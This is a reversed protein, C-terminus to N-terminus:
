LVAAGSPSRPAHDSAALREYLSEYADVHAKWASDDRARAAGATGLAAAEAPRSLLRDLSAALGEVDEPDALLGTVGHDVVERLGGVAFGVVPRGMQAAQLAVLGFPEFRSPMAVLSAAELLAPVRGPDVWGRFDVLDALGLDAAQRELAARAQGDGAIVVSMSPHRARLHAIAELGLDFGKQDTVRGIMLIVPPDFSPAAPRRQPVPLANRIVSSSAERGPVSRRFADFIDESCATVWAADRVTPWLTGHERTLYPGKDEHLTVLTPKRRFASRPFFADAFAAYVHVIHPALYRGLEALRGRASAVAEIDNSELARLFPARVIRVGAVEGEAALEPPDQNTVVVVEHGRRRLERVFQVGLVEVGGIHPWWNTSYLLIRM